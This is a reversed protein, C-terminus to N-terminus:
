WRLQRQGKMPTSRKPISTTAKDGKNDWDVAATNGDTARPQYEAYDNVLNPDAQHTPVV